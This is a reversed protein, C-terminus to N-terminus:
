ATALFAEIEAIKAELKDAEGQWKPRLMHRHKLWEKGCRVLGEQFMRPLQYYTRMSDLIDVTKLLVAIPGFAVARTVLDLDGEWGDRARIEPIYACADVLNAVYDRFILRVQDRTIPTDETTDHMLAAVVDEATVYPLKELQEGVRIPHLASPTTSNIRSTGHGSLTVLLLAAQLVAAPDNRDLHEAFYALTPQLLNKPDFGIAAHSDSNEM